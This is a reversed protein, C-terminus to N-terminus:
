ILLNIDLYPFRGSAGVDDDDGGSQFLQSELLREAEELDVSDPSQERTQGVTPQAVQHGNVQLPQVKLSREESSNLIDHVRIMVDAFSPASDLRSKQVRAIFEDIQPSRPILFLIILFKLMFLQPSTNVPDNQTASHCYDLSIICKALAQEIDTPKILMM